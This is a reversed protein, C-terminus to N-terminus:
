RTIEHGQGHASALLETAFDETVSVIDFDRIGISEQEEASMLVDGFEMMRRLAGGFGCAMDVDGRALAAAGEPPNMQLLNVASADVDLHDLTRLQKYHTVNGIPTAIKGGELDKANAQM